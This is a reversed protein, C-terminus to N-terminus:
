EFLADLAQELRTVAIIQLGPPAEKPANGKPVIARKFGHKAAEKLREQGSPVPRVEGSLGVEGFVLLDHPLPRHGTALLPELFRGLVAEFAGDHGLAVRRLFGRRPQLDNGHCPQFLRQIRQEFLGPLQALVTHPLM